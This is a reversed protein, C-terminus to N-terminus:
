LTITAQASEKGSGDVATVAYTSVISKNANHNQYQTTSGSVTAIKVGNKYINYAVVGSSDSPTWNLVAAYEYMWGFDNIVYKGALNTPANPALVFYIAISTGISGEGNNLLHYIPEGSLPAITWYVAHFANDAGIIYATGESSFAVDYASSSNGTGNLLVQASGVNGDSTIVWYVSVNGSAQGVIIGQGNPLFAVSRGQSNSGAGDLEIASSPVGGSITWYCAVGGTTAGVLYAVGTAPSFAVSYISATGGVEGGVLGHPGNVVGAPSIDWYSVNFSNDYGVIIGAGSSDFAVGSVGGDSDLPFSDSIVGTTSVTWYAPVGSGNIGVMYGIGSPNFAIDEISAQAGNSTGSLLNIASAVGNLPVTWYAATTEEDTNVGGGIYALGTPNFAVCNAEVDDNEGQDLVLAESPNSPPILTWYVSNGESDGGVMYITDAYISQFLGLACLCIKFVKDM